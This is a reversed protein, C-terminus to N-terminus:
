RVPGHWELEEYAVTVFDPGQVELVRVSVALDLFVRSGVDVDPTVLRLLTFHTEGAAVLFISEMGMEPQGEGISQGGEATLRHEFDPSAMAMPMSTENRVGVWLGLENEVRHDEDLPIVSLSWSPRGAKMTVHQRPSANEPLQDVQLGRDESPLLQTSHRVRVTRGASSPTAADFSQFVLAKLSVILEGELPFRESLYLHARKNLSEGPLLLHRDRSWPECAHVSSSWIDGGWRAGGPTGVVEYYAHTFCVVRPQSSRNIMGLWFQAGLSMSDDHDTLVSIEWAADLSAVQSVRGKTEIRACIASSTLLVNM